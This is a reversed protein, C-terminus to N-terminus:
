LFRSLDSKEYLDELKLIIYKYGQETLFIQRKASYIEDVTDRSVISYFFAQNEGPKPRLIRGLRQAEEQRSGFTGSLQIAVKATPLDIAFNAVKSVVLVKVEGKKFREYLKKRQDNPTSGTILPAGLRSAVKKLQEIFQGIILIQDGSHRSLIMDLAKEKEPNTSAIVYKEKHSASAYRLKLQQPMEVRIEFCIAKAIWGQKELLKWPADYRKPGVLAFIEDEKGDERVLTASLGLRRKAQLEATIRFVPAPLLHVEDYIILGWNQLEFLAMHKFDEGKRRRHTLMQYTTVTIPKIEKVDGTYEGIDEEKIDTKDLLEEKWQRVAITSTAVILTKTQLKEMVGIGVITKGAGCPLVVVGSGGKESGNLYFAEIADRQYPRYRLNTVRFHFPEGDSYGAWDEVPYGMKILALKLYGRAYREVELEREGLRRVIYRAAKKNGLVIQLFLEDEAQLVLRGERTILKLKGYRGIYEKVEFIINEPVEFRSYRRLSGIIREASWGASAANWLSIPTIRYTHVYEPSKVLEAFIGIEGRAEEFEPSDTFLLLTRDSQVILPKSGM